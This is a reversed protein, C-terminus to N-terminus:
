FWSSQYKNLRQKWGRTNLRAMLLWPELTEVKKKLAGVISLMITMRLTIYMTGFYWMTKQMITINSMRFYKYRTEKLVESTGRCKHKAESIPALSIGSQYTQAILM